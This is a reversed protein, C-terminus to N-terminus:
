RILPSLLFGAVLLLMVMRLLVIEKETVIEQFRYVLANRITSM